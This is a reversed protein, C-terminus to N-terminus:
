ECSKLTEIFNPNKLFPRAFGFLNINSEAQIADIDSRDRLGGTLIVPTDVEKALLEAPKKYYAREAAKHFRWCEGSVEIADVGLDSLQKAM